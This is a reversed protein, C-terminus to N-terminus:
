AEKLRTGWKDFTAISKKEAVEVWCELRPGIGGRTCDHELMSRWSQLVVMAAELLKALERATIGKTSETFCTTSSAPCQICTMPFCSPVYVCVPASCGAITLLHSQLCSMPLCICVTCDSRLM